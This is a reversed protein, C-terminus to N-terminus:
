RNIRFEIEVRATLRYSRGKRVMLGFLTVSYKEGYWRRSGKQCSKRGVIIDTPMIKMGKVSLM